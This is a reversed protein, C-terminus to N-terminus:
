DVEQARALLRALKKRAHFIRSKVTGVPISLVESIEEYTQDLYFALLVVDRHGPELQQLAQRVVVTDPVLDQEPSNSGAVVQLQEDSVPDPSRARRGSINAIKNYCIGFLWTSGQSRGQFRSAAGQWVALLTDHVADAALGEDGLRLVAFRYLRDAFRHYLAEFANRDGAAILKLLEVDSGPSATITDSAM